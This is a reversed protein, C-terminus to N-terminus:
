WMQKGLHYNIGLDYDEILELWRRPRLSFDSQMFIYKLDKHDMYPECKKEMLYYRWIKLAHVEAALEFNQTM